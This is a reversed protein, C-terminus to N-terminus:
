KAIGILILIKSKALSNSDEMSIPARCSKSLISMESCDFTVLYRMSFSGKQVRVLMRQSAIMMSCTSIKKLSIMAIIIGSTGLLTM